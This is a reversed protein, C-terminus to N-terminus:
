KKVEKDIFKFRLLDKCNFFAVFNFIKTAEYVVFVELIRSESYCTGVPNDFL